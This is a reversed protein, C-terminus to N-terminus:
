IGMFNFANTIYCKINASGVPNASHVNYKFPTNINHTMMYEILFKAFTYGTEETGDVMGLDHDFSVFEPLGHKTVYEVGEAYSRVTVMDKTPYLREAIREDDIFLNYCM